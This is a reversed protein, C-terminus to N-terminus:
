KKPTKELEEFLGVVADMEELIRECADVVAVGVDHADAEGALTLVSRLETWHRSVKTLDARIRLTGQPAQALEACAVEFERGSTRVIADGAATQGGWHRFLILKSIRQALMRQRGAVNILRGTQSDAEREVALTLEQAAALVKESQELIMAACSNGPACGLLAKYPLWSDQLAELAQNVTEHETARALFLMQEEFELLAQDLSRRAEEPLIGCGLMFWSRAMRQSLMRQRGARNIVTQAARRPQLISSRVAMKRLFGDFADTRRRGAQPGAGATSPPLHCCHSEAIRANQLAIRRGKVVILGAESLDRLCRSLTEPTIGIHAAILRKSLTLSLETETQEAVPTGALGIFYDLLSQSGNRFRRDVIHRELENQRQALAEIVRWALKVDFEVARRVTEGGIRLLRVPEVAVAFLTYPYDGFLEADGFIGGPGIVDLVKETGDYSTVSRKVRGSLVLYVYSPADGVRYITGDKHVVVTVCADALAQLSQSDLAAFLPSASLVSQAAVDLHHM